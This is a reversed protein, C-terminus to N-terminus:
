TEVAKAGNSGTGVLGFYFLTGGEGVPVGRLGYGVARDEEESFREPNIVRLQINGNAAQEFEELLEKVRITYSSIGPLLPALATSVYFRLTIPEELGELINQTGQTLTYLHHETLDVRASTFAANSFLNLAFFLAMAMLLGTGTLIKKNM